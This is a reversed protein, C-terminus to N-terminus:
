LEIKFLIDCKLKLDNRTKIPKNKNLFVLCCKEPFGVDDLIHYCFGWYRECYEEHSHIKM